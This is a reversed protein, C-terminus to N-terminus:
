TKSLIPMFMRCYIGVDGGSTCSSTKWGSSSCQSIDLENGTCSVNQLHYSESGTGFCSDCTEPFRYYFMYTILVTKDKLTLNVFHQKSLLDCNDVYICFATILSSVHIEALSFIISILSCVM